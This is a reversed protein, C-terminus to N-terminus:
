PVGDAVAQEIPTLTHGISALFTLYEGAQTRPCPSYGDTRWTNRGDNQTLAHEYTVAISTLM